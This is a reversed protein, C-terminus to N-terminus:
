EDVHLHHPTTIVIADVDPSRLLDQKAEVFGIGYRQALGLARKGGSVAVVDTYPLRKVAEIHTRGMFGSGIIGFRLPKMRSFRRPYRLPWTGAGAKRGA